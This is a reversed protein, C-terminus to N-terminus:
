IEKEYTKFLELYLHWADVSNDPEDDEPQVSIDKSDTDTSVGREKPTMPIADDQTESFDFDMEHDMDSDKKAFIVQSSCLAACVLLSAFRM